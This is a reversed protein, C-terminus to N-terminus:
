TQMQTFLSSCTQIHQGTLEVTSEGSDLWETSVPM